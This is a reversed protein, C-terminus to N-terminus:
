TEALSRTTPDLTVCLTLNETSHFAFVVWVTEACLPVIWSSVRFRVFV